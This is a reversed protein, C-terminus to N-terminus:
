GISIFDFASNVFVLTSSLLIILKFYLSPIKAEKFQESVALSLLSATIYPSFPFITIGLNQADFSAYKYVSSLVSFYISSYSSAPYLYSISSAFLQM